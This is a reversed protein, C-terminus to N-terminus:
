RTEEDLVIRGPASNMRLQSLVNKRINDDIDTSRSSDAIFRSVEQLVCAKLLDIQLLADEPMRAMGEDVARKMLRVELMSLLWAARYRPQRFRSWIVIAVLQEAAPISDHTLRMLRHLGIASYTVSDVLYKTENSSLQDLELLDLADRIEGSSM